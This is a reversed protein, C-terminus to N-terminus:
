KLLEEPIDVEEGLKSAVYCRMAAILPAPGSFRIQRQKDGKDWTFMSWRGGESDGHDSSMMAFWAGSSHKRLAIEEREIIPGGQPWNISPRYNGLRTHRVNNQELWFDNFVDDWESVYGQCKAVVWDLALDTLEAIKIKM